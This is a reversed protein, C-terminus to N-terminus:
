KMLGFVGIPPDDLLERGSKECIVAYFLSCRIKAAGFEWPLLTFGISSSESSFGMSYEDGFTAELLWSLSFVKLEKSGLLWILTIVKALFSPNVIM